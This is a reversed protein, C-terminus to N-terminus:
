PNPISDIMRKMEDISVDGSIFCEYSDRMWIAKIKQNNTTIYYEKGGSLYIEMVNESIEMRQSGDAFYTYVCIVLTQEGNAYHAMYNRKEPHVDVEVREVVFGDPIWTPVIDSKRGTQALAQQLSTFQRMQEDDSAKLPETPEEQAFYFTGATWKAVVNIIKEWKLAKATVPICVALIAVVAAAIARRVWPKSRKQAKYEQHSAVPEEEEYLYNQQFSAWAEQATKGTRNPKEREALIGTIYLLADDDLGEAEPEESDLRLLQALEESSMADYRSFDGVSRNKNKPM